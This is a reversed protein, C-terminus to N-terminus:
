QLGDQQQSSQALCVPSWTNEFGRCSMGTKGFGAAWHYNSTPTISWLSARTGFKFRTSLVLVGFCKIIEGVTTRKKRRKLLNCSTLIVMEKLQLPPCCLYFYDLWSRQAELDSGPGLMNGVSSWVWWARTPVVEKIHLRTSGQHGAFWELGHAVSVPQTKTVTATATTATFAAAATVADTGAATATATTPYSNVFRQLRLVARENKVMLARESDDLGTQAEVTPSTHTGPMEGTKFNDLLHQVFAEFESVGLLSHTFTSEASDIATVTLAAAAVVTGRNAAVAAMLNESAAMLNESASDAMRNESASAAATAAMGDNGSVEM